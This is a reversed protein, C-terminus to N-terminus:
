DKQLDEWTSIFVQKMTHYARVIYAKCIYNSLKCHAHTHHIHTYQLICIFLTYAKEFKTIFQM